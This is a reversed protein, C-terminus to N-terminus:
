KGCTIGVPLLVSPPANESIPTAPLSRNLDDLSKRRYLSFIEAELDDSYITSPSNNNIIPDERHALAFIVTEVYASGDSSQITTWSKRPIPSPTFIRCTNATRIQVMVRSDRSPQLEHSGHPLADPMEPVQNCSGSPAQENPLEATVEASDPLERLPEAM